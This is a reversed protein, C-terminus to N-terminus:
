HMLITHRGSPLDMELWGNADHPNVRKGDMSLTALKQRSRLRLKAQAKKPLTCHIELAGSSHVSWDMDIPGFETVCVGRAWELGSIRPEILLTRQGIPGERRAGLVFATLFYGPHMGYIHVKSGGGKELEEWTTQWESDVQHKWGAKMLSLVDREEQEDMTYLMRFLYYYSMPELIEPKHMLIWKQVSALREQPVIGAYIAFLNAQATPRFRGGIVEGSFPHGQQPRTESGPGFLAGDYVGETENWLLRNYDARLQGAEGALTEYDDRKGITEAMTSADVLARYVMANLGAGECMQYRLPNDWVEWERALTLGRSTRRQRYWLMLRMLTPWLERVLESDGSSEQYQRLLVVWDCSRDEMIAHIDFRESCTHAKIQGDPQQTLAVRRLLGRLLRSDGWHSKGDEEPGRMMVRTCDFAPPSDDTWEVRERDACDVYSDESLIELSRACISWLQTLLPDSCAFSAAREFPYRVEYAVARNIRMRGSKLRLELRRFAFTDGGIYTQTGSRAIYTCRGSEEGHPLCYSVELESGEDADLDLVHFAQAIRDSQLSWPKDIALAIPFANADPTCALAEEMQLPTSRPHFLISGIASTVVSPQWGASTLDPRTWDSTKRADIHEEISSWAEARSQFSLEPMSLWTSDTAIIRRQGDQVVELAAICGPAHQMIRGTPADRHALIVLMNQGAHLHSSIDRTDYEPRQNQYRCPGRGVYAGNVYLRYRTFAFLHLLAHSPAASLLFEKAFISHLDPTPVKEAPSAIADNGGGALPPVPVSTASWILTAAELPYAGPRTEGPAAHTFARSLVPMAAAATGAIM